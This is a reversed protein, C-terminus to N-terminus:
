ASPKNRVFQSLAFGGIFAGGVGTVLAFTSVGSGPGGAAAAQVAKGGTDAQTPDGTAQGVVVLVGRMKAPHVTCRYSYSGPEAPAVLAGESGPALQGTDLNDVDDFTATHQASGTNKWTVTGGPAVSAEKPDFGFDIIKVSAKNPASSV